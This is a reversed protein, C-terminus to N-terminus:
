DGHCFLAIPAQVIERLRAPYRPDNWTILHRADGELWRLDSDIGAQDPERLGKHLSSPIGAASWAASSPAFLTAPGGFQQLLKAASVTGIGPARLLALWPKLASPSAPKVAAVALVKEGVEACRERSKWRTASTSRARRTGCWRTRCARRPRSCWSRAPT